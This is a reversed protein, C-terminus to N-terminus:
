DNIVRGKIQDCKAPTTIIPALAGIKCTIQGKTDLVGETPKETDYNAIAAQKLYKSRLVEETVTCLSQNPALEISPLMVCTGAPHRFSNSSTVHHYAIAGDAMKVAYRYEYKQQGPQDFSSGVLAGLLAVGLQTKASYNGHNIARDIYATQAVASGLATGTNSAPTSRDIGQNDILIGFSNNPIAEVFYTKQVQSKEEQSLSHWLDEPLVLNSSAYTSSTTLALIVALKQM